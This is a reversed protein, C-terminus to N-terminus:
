VASFQQKFIVGLREATDADEPKKDYRFRLLRPFRLAFGSEYKPSKQIEEYGVEIVIEPKISVHVGVENTILGKLKETLEKFQKDSLGTGLKGCKLFRGSESDRCSLEVSSLWSSRKGKGWDAGTIVLDLPELVPKIKIWSGVRRGPQYKADLNKIMLGEQGSKLSKKYFEKIKKLDKTKLEEVVEFKGPIEDVIRELADRRKSFSEGLLSKSNLYIIDFLNMKVPIKKVMEDIDYKRQVRRSLKQFPLPKGKSGVAVCEGEVICSKAKLSKSYDVLEPFQNTVDELRRTFLWVKDGQKHIQLRVGDFKWEAALNEYKDVADEIAPIKEGLMVVVPKGPEIEVNELGKKGNKKAIVAIEGYNPNVFWANEVTKSDVDFSKAIADRVTGEAVGIRLTELATRVIYKAEKPKASSLLESILGIKKEQSGKGVLGPLKQMNEFVAEVTLEKKFLSSQKKSKLCSEAVLGLDGMDKLKGVIERESLGSTKSIIKVMMKSAIGTKNESYSPFVKGTSLIVIKELVGVPTDSFLESLIEVKKLKGSENELKEYTEALRIYEM